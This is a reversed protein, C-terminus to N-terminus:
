EAIHFGKVAEALRVIGIALPYPVLMLALGLVAWVKRPGLLGILGCPLGVFVAVLSIQVVFGAYGMPRIHAGAEVLFFQSATLSALASWVAGSIVAIRSCTAHLRYPHSVPLDSPATKVCM